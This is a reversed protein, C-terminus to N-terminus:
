EVAIESEEIIFEDWPDRPITKVVWLAEEPRRRRSVYGTMLNGEHCTQRDGSVLVKVKIGSGPMELDVKMCGDLSIANTSGIFRGAQSKSDFVIM